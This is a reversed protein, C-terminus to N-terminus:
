IMAYGFKGDPPPASALNDADKAIEGTEGDEGDETMAASWGVDRLLLYAEALAAHQDDEVPTAALLGWTADLADRMPVHAAFEWPRDLRGERIAAMAAERAAMFRDRDAWGKKRDVWAVLADLGADVCLVFADLHDRSAPMERGGPQDRMVPEDVMSFPDLTVDTAIVRNAKSHGVRGPKGFPRDPEEGPAAIRLTLSVDEVETFVEPGRVDELANLLTGSALRLAPHMPEFGSTVLGLIM